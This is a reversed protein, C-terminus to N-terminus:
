DPRKDETSPPPLEIGEYFEAVPVEVDIEPMRLVSDPGLVHGVWDDGIREFMTGGVVDQALLVYRRVSPTAAYERNKVVTDTGMTSPSLVEFIVVPDRALKDSPAGKTCTVFGDPYRISDAVEIKLDNGFFQCPKGRLRATFAFALNRQIAAHARTGGTMAIPQVGDFEYRPGQRDEWDLFEDRTMRARLAVNMVTVM